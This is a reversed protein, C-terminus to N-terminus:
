KKTSFAKIKNRPVGEWEDITLIAYAEQGVGDDKWNFPLSTDIGFANATKRVKILAAKQDKLSDDARAPWIPYFFDPADPFDPLELILNIPGRDKPPLVGRIRVRAEEDAPAPEFNDDIGSLDYNLLNNEESM